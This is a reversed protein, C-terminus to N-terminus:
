FNTCLRRDSIVASRRNCGWYDVPDTEADEKYEKM